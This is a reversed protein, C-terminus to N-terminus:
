YHMLKGSRHHNFWNSQRCHLATWLGVPQSGFHSVCGTQRWRV